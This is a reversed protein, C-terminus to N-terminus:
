LDHLWGSPDCAEFVVLGVTQAFLFSRLHGRNTPTTPFRSKQSRPDFSCCLSNFKGLDIALIPANSSPEFNM